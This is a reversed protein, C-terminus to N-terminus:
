DVPADIPHPADPPVAADPLGADIPVPPLDTHTHVRVAGNPLMEDDNPLEHANTDAFHTVLWALGGLGIAVAGTVIGCTKQEGGQLECSLLGISGGGVAVTIAPHAACTPQTGLLALALALKV